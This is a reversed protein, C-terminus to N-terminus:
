GHKEIKGLNTKLGSNVARYSPGEMPPLGLSKTYTEHGDLDIDDIDKHTHIIDMHAHEHGIAPQQSSRCNSM